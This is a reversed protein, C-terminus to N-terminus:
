SGSGKQRGLRKRGSARVCGSAGERSPLGGGEAGNDWVRASGDPSTTARAGTDDFRRLANNHSASARYSVAALRRVAARAEGRHFRFSANRSKSIFRFLSASAAAKRTEKFASYKLDYTHTSM